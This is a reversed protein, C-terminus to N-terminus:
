DFNRSCLLLTTPDRGSQGGFQRRHVTNNKSVLHIAEKWKLGLLFNLDAEYLYIVRPRHIKFNNGKNLIMMNVIKQWQLLSYSHTIAYTSIGAYLTAISAQIDCFHSHESEHLTHNITRRFVTERGTM